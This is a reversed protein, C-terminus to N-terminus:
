CSPSNRTRKCLDQAFSYIESEIFGRNNYSWDVGVNWTGGDKWYGSRARTVLDYNFAVVKGDFFNIHKVKGEGDYPLAFLEKDDLLLKHM